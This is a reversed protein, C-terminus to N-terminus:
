QPDTPRECFCIGKCHRCDCGEKIQYHPCPGRYLNHYPTLDPFHAYLDALTMGHKACLYEIYEQSEKKGALAEPTHKDPAYSEYDKDKM